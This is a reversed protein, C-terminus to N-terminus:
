TATFPCLSGCSRTHAVLGLPPCRLPTTEGGWWLPEAAPCTLYKAVLAGGARLAARPEAVVERIGLSSFCAVKLQARVFALLVSPSSPPPSISGSRGSHPAGWTRLSRSRRGASRRSSGQWASRRWWAGRRLYAGM